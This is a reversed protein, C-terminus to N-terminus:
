IIENQGVWNQSKAERVEQPLDNWIPIVRNLFFERRPTCYREKMVGSKEVNGFTLRLNGFTRRRPVKPSGENKRRSGEKVKTFRRRVKM